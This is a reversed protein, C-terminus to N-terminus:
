PNDDVVIVLTPNDLRDASNTATQTLFYQTWAPSVAMQDDDTLAFDRKTLRTAEADILSNDLKTALIDGGRLGRVMRRQLICEVTGTTVSNDNLFHASVLRHVYNVTNFCCLRDTSNFSGTLRDSAQLTRIAM